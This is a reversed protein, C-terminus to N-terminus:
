SSSKSLHTKIWISLGNSLTSMWQSMREWDFGHIERERQALMPVKYFWLTTIQGWSTDLSNLVQTAELDFWEGANVVSRAEVNVKRPTRGLIPDVLHEVKKKKKEIPRLSKRWREPAWPSVVLRYGEVCQFELLPPEELTRMLEVTKLNVQEGFWAAPNEIKTIKKRQDRRDRLQAQVWENMVGRMEQLVRAQRHNTILIIMAMLFVSAVTISAFFDIM